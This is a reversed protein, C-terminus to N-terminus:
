DMIAKTYKELVINEDFSLIMKERGNKGMQELISKDLNLIKEMKEALDIPNKPECLFGNVGDDVIEKCGSVNTAILTKAMSAAELLSKSMGEKYSALVVCEASAVIKSVDDSMGLYVLFDNKLWSNLEEDSIATNNKVNKEGLLLIKFDDRKKRLIKGAEVLEVIGKDKILRAVCLM